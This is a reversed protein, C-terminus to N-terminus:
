KVPASRSSRRSKNEAVVGGALWAIIQDVSVGLEALIQQTDEGPEPSLRAAPAAKSRSFQILPGICHMVEGYCEDRMTRVIGSELAKEWADRVCEEAWVDAADLEALLARTSWSAIRDAIKTGETEGWVTQDPPLTVDLVELRAAAMPASRAAIAIWGDSTQYLSEAPTFGSQTRDLCLAGHLAGDSDRVFESMMHIAVNLLNTEAALARGSKLREYLGVLLGIAGIAGTAFDVLPARCCLPPNGLGGARHELGCHAQMIMDFGPARAKPGTAGYATTELTILAPNMSRLTKQDLGLRDGVGPRFNHLIVDATKCLSAVIGRGPESKADVCISRKGHLATIITREGSLTSRGTPPEVQIVDAGYDALLKSAYPGAVFIGFDVIRIGALPAAPSDPLKQMRTMWDASSVDNASESLRLPNRVFSWGAEDKEIIENIRSQEDNWCEGPPLVAEAPVGAEHLARILESRSHRHAASNLLEVDGYFNAAGRAPDPMGRDASDVVDTIGLVRYVKAVAGPVGLTLQLYEGGACRLILQRVDRPTIGLFGADPKEAKMWFPGWFMAAGAAMSVSVIQGHGSREREILAVWAGILGQLAAGYGALPFSAAIPRQSFQEYVAGTRAQVLLDVAPRRRASDGPYALLQLIVLRPYQRSLAQADQEHAIGPFDEGGVICVDADGLWAAARDPTSQLAHRRWLRYAPYVAHFPDGARPEIRVIQAGLEAFQKAILAASMGMGFDVVRLSQVARKPTTAHPM